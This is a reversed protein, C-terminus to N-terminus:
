AFSSVASHEGRDVGVDVVLEVLFVVKDIALSVLLAARGCQGLPLREYSSGARQFSSNRCDSVGQSLVSLVSTSQRRVQAVSVGLRRASRPSFGDAISKISRSQWEALNPQTEPQRPSPNEWALQPVFIGACCEVRRPLFHHFM